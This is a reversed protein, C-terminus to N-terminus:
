FSGGGPESQQGYLDHQVASQYYHEITTPANYLATLLYGRINRVKTTNKKMCDLVYEIHPQELGSLRERVIQSKFQAGGIRYSAQPSCLVDTILEVLEDVEPRQQERFAIYGIQEKVLERCRNRDIADIPETASQNISPYLYSNNLYNKNNYPVESFPFEASGSQPLRSKGNPSSKVETKPFDPSGTETLRFDNNPPPIPQQPISKTTFRKVYIRTPHGQGQKVREILGIGTVTDLEALLRVGKNHGCNLATQIEDLTYHIYVRGCHDYWHNKISLGMRDLMLGYLLKADTSLNRFQQGTVLLRPIRYYSFQESEEGYFYDFYVQNQLRSM